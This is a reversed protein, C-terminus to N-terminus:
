LGYQLEEKKAKMVNRAKILNTTALAYDKECLKKGAMAKKGCVYCLGYYIRDVRVETQGRAKNVKRKNKIKM